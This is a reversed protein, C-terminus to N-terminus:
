RKNADYVINGDVITYLVKTTLIEKEDCELLNNSLVVIDALKGAVLSGKDSEEFASYACDITYSRLAQMRTMCQEPFFSVDDKVKRTVSAYFSPLPNVSEVPADTGNSVIAGSKLLSQWVYAGEASRKMGLRKPVFIADSTCHVAQMSAIVGLEAFRSIDDPHLHQAHEIRWRRPVNSPNSSFTEEYIDLVERNARDGIAHICLQFDHKVALKAANKASALTATNLGTSTPLDSYPALLWAGHAGLAGDISLKIGRVTFFDNAYGIRKATALKRELLEPQDRVMVWLRVGLKDADAAQRLIEIEDFSTGADQFSTIGYKLCEQSALEIARANYAKAVAASRKEIAIQRAKNILEEATERFVGIAKGDSNRLIEGGEPNATEDSVGALRMAYENAICMHGSAHTLLVPHDPTLKSLSEVSPYGGFNNAPATEWKSQHWGRGVIWEGPPTIDAAESVDKVIEDWTKAEGLSLMMLSQGLGLFHAHGEIFGPMVFQGDLKLIQTDPTRFREVQSQNGVCLIRGNRIALSEAFPQAADVTAIKGGSIILDAAPQQAVGSTSFVAASLLIALVTITWQTASKALDTDSALSAWTASNTSTEILLPASTNSSM